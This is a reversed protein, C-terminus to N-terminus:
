VHGRAQLLSNSSAVALTSAAPVGTTSALAALFEPSVRRQSGGAPTLCPPFPARTNKQTPYPLPPVDHGHAHPPPPPLGHASGAVSGPAAPRGGGCRVAAVGVQRWSPPTWAWAWAAPARAM